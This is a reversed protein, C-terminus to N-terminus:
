GFKSWVKGTNSYRAADINQAWGVAGRARVRDTFSKQAANAPLAQIMQQNQSLRLQAPRETGIDGVKIIGPWMLAALLLHRCPYHRFLAHPPATTGDVGYRDQATQM